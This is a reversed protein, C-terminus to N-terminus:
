QHIPAQIRANTNQEFAPLLSLPHLSSLGPTPCTELMVRTTNNPEFICWIRRWHIQRIILKDRSSNSSGQRARQQKKGAGSAKGPRAAGQGVDPQRTKGHMGAVWRMVLADRSNGTARPWVRINAQAHTCNDNSHGNANAHQMHQRGATDM